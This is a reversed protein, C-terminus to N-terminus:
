PREAKRIGATGTGEIKMRIQFRESARAEERVVPASLAVSSFMPSRAVIGVLESASRAYGDIWLVDNEIRVNTVWATDPLLRTVEEWLAIVQIGEARRLRLAGIRDSLTDADQVRKRVAQAQTRAANTEVELQALAQDQRQLAAVVTAACVLVLLAAATAIVWSLRRALSPAAEGRSLLNFGMRDGEAGVVDVASIPVGMSRAEAMLPDILCRKAIVHVVQLSADDLPALGIVRWAHRVDELRFPTAREIELALVDGIREVAAVPVKRHRILCRGAPLAVDVRMLPGWRRRRKAVWTLASRPDRPGELRQREVNSLGKIRVQRVDAGNDHVLIQVTMPDASLVHRVRTPILHRLEDLWWRLARRGVQAARRLPRRIDANQATTGPSLM